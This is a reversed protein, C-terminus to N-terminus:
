CCTNYFSNSRTERGFLFELNWCQLYWYCFLFLVSLLVCLRELFQVYYTFCYFTTEISVAQYNNIFFPIGQADGLKSAQSEKFIEKPPRPCGWAQAKIGEQDKKMM